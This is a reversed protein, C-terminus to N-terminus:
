EGAEQNADRSEELWAKWIELMQSVTTTEVFEAGLYETFIDVILQQAVLEREGADGISEAKLLRLNYAPKLSAALPLRYTKKDGERKFEMFRPSDKGFTRM